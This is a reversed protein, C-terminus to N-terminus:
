QLEIKNLLVNKVCAKSEGSGNSKIKATRKNISLLIAPETSGTKSNYYYVYDGTKM